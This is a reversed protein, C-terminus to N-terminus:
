RATGAPDEHAGKPVESDIEVAKHTKQFKQDRGSEPCPNM